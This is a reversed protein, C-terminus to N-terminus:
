IDLGPFWDKWQGLWVKMLKEDVSGMARITASDRQSNAISMISKPEDQREVLTRFFGLLSAAPLNRLDADPSAAHSELSRVWENLPIVKADCAKAVVGALKKWNTARPNTIHYVSLDGPPKDRHSQVIETM